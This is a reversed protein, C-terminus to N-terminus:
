RSPQDALEAPLPQSARRRMPRLVFLALLATLWDFAVALAFIPVWSGTAEHLASGLPVLLAATGKATYLIGYNTTAYKRGFLDGALAPFLSFIEGWAFFALGVLIVFLAPDHALRIFLLIALGELAFALFMTRERGIYDSIWGFIPRTVGSCLRELISAYSLAELTVGLLTVEVGAVHLHRAIPDLQAVIMLGGTTVMTMMGYLLWFVKTRVMELPTFDRGSQAVRPRAPAPVEALRPARLVLAVLLVVFAQGVGFWLFANEFGAQAITRRIPLVTLASGAGFGAATLGAALGRRDPFWKLANGISTGYVMGVGAGALASGTYLLALSNAASNIAWGGGALLAGSLMMLFPGFRDVLYAEVPVLWTEMLVFLTFAVQVDAEEWGHKQQLPGVFFKWGYQYNAVAVMGLIGATLQVWRKRLLSAPRAPLTLDHIAPGTGPPLNTTLNPDNM